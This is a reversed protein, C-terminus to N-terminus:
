RGRRCRTGPTQWGAKATDTWPHPALFRQTARSNISREGRSRVGGWPHPALLQQTARGFTRLSAESCLKREGLLVAHDPALLTARLASLDTVYVPEDTQTSNWPRYWLPLRGSAGATLRSL